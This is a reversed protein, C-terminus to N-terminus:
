KKGKVPATKSPVKPQELIVILNAIKRGWSIKYSVTVRIGKKLESIAVNRSAKSVITKENLNLKLPEGTQPVVTVMLSRLDVETVKGSIQFVKAAEAKKAPSRQGMSFAQSVFALTVCMVIASILIAKRM